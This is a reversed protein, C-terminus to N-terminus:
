LQFELVKAVEHSSNVWQFLSQHQSPNPCSSFPIVSSSIAPHCWRSSPCSNSYVGPISSPCPPRTHQLEYPGLSDSMVSHSFQVSLRIQELRNLLQSFVSMRQFLVNRWRLAWTTGRSPGRHICRHYYKHVNPFLLWTLWSCLQNTLSSSLNEKRWEREWQSKVDTQQTLLANLNMTIIRVMGPCRRASQTTHLCTKRSSRHSCLDGTICPKWM